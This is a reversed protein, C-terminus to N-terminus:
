LTENADKSVIILWNRVCAMRGKTYAADAVEDWRFIYNLLYCASEHTQNAASIGIHLIFCDLFRNYPYIKQRLFGPTSPVECPPAGVFIM